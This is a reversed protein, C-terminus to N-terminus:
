DFLRRLAKGAEEELKDKLADEPNTGDEAGLSKSVEGEVEQVARDRVKEVEEEVRDEVLSALDLGFKPADWTGKITIPVSLGAGEGKLLKPVFRYDLTQGGLGIEGSGEASLFPAKFSLDTNTVVGDEIQFTGDISDFITSAGSTLAGVDLSELAGLIDLGQLEGAGFSFSGGGDMSNLLADMSNGVALVQISMNGLSILRDYDFLEAFLRSIAIASGSLDASASLGNRGNVVFNGAVSGDYAQLDLIETVARANDLRTRLSTQGLQSSGIAISAATLTVDADVIGLSSVDIPETSWGEASESNSTAEGGKEDGGLASLDLAGANLRATIAPREGGLAVAVDGTIRNQDLTLDLDSLVASDGAYSTQASLKITEAGLGQPMELPGAGAAEFLASSGLDASLAGEVSPTTALAGDFNVTSADAGIAATVPVADGALLANLDSIAADVTIPQGNSTATMAVNAATGTPATVTANIDTLVFVTGESFYRLAGDTVQIQDIGISTSASDGPTGTGGEDTGSAFDWNGAGDPGTELLVTPRVLDVGKVQLDGGWVVSWDVAVDLAEATVMPGRESWGANAIEVDEVRVGLSPWLQPRIDGAISLERGTAGEFQDAVVGAIRDSPIFFLAGIAVVILVVIIGLIRLVLRM